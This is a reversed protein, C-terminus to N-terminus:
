LLRSRRIGISVAILLLGILGMVPVPSATKPLHAPTKAPAPHTGATAAPTATASTETGRQPAAPHPQPPAAATQTPATGTVARATTLEVRPAETIKEATVNMGQRLDFVTMDSGDPQHFKFSDKVVFQRNEGNALTLIVNPPAVYFVRGSITQVTREMVPTKTETYTAHLKTGPQLQDLPVEKGDIVFKESAPPTFIRTEGSALKVLLQHGEAKLVTGSLTHTTVVPTGKTSSTGSTEQASAMVAMLSMSAVVVLTTGLTAVLSRSQTAPM